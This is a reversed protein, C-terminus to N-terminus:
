AAEELDSNNAFKTIREVMYECQEMTLDFNRVFSILGGPARKVAVPKDVIKLLISIWNTIKKFDVTGAHIRVEITRHRNYAAGNIGHYRDMNPSFMRNKVPSCYRMGNVVANRSAPNMSYLFYQSAVLNSFAVEKVRNRMDLHVHMGCTKNVSCGVKKLVQCVRQVVKEIETEEAVICLEHRYPYENNPKISGDDKLNCYKFLGKSTLESGLVNEDVKSIFELEVGVHNNNTKPKKETFVSLGKYDLVYNLYFSPQRHVGCVMQPYFIRGSLTRRKIEDYHHHSLKKRYHQIEMKLYFKLDKILVCRDVSNPSFTRQATFVKNLKKHFFQLEYTIKPSNSQLSKKIEKNIDAGYGDFEDGYRHYNLAVKRLSDLYAQQGKTKNVNKITLKLKENKFLYEM